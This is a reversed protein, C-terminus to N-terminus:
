LALTLDKERYRDLLAKAANMAAKRRRVDEAWAEAFEGVAFLAPAAERIKILRKHLGSYVPIGQRIASTVLFKRKYFHSLSAARRCASIKGFPEVIFLASLGSPWAM